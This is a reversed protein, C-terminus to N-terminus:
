AQNCVADQMATLAELMDMAKEIDNDMGPGNDQIEISIM